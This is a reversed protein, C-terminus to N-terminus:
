AVEVWRMCTRLVNNYDGSTAEIQFAQIEDKPVKAARLARAVSVIIFYANGDEGTLQVRVNPYKPM